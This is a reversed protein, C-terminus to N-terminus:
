RQTLMTLMVAISHDSMSFPRQEVDACQRFMNSCAKAM